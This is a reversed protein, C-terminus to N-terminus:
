ATWTLRRSRSSLGLSHHPRRLAWRRHTSGRRGSSPPTARSFAMLAARDADTASARGTRTVFGEFTDRRGEGGVGNRLESTTPLPTERSAAPRATSGPHRSILWGRPHLRSGKVTQWSARYRVVCRLSMSCPLRETGAELSCGVERHRETVILGVEHTERKLVLHTIRAQLESHVHM